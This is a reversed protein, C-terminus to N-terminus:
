VKPESRTSEASVESSIVDCVDMVLNTLSRSSGDCFPLKKFAAEMALSNQDIKSQNDDFPARMVEKMRGWTEPSEAKLIKVAQDVQEDSFYRGM